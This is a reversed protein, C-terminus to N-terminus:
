SSAGYFFNQAVFPSVLSYWDCERYLVAVTNTQQQHQQQQLGRICSMVVSRRAGVRLQRQIHTPPVTTSIAWFFFFLFLLRCTERTRYFAVLVQYIFTRLSLLPRQKLLPSSFLTTSLQAPLSYFFIIITTREGRYRVSQKKELWQHSGRRRKKQKKKKRHISCSISARRGAGGDAVWKCESVWECVWVSVYEVWM